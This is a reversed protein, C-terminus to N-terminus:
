RDARGRWPRRFYRDADPVGLQALRSSRGRGPQQVFYIGVNENMFLHRTHFFETDRLHGIVERSNINTEFFGLQMRNLPPLLLCSQGQRAAFEANAAVTPM